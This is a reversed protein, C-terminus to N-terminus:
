GTQERFDLPPDSTMFPRQTCRHARHQSTRQAHARNLRAQLDLSVGQSLLQHSSNEITSANRCGFSVKALHPVGDDAVLSQRLPVRAGRLVQEGRVAAHHGPQHLLRSGPAGSANADSFTNLDSM